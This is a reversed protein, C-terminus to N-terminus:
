GHIRGAWTSLASGLVSSLSSLGLEAQIRCEQRPGHLVGYVPLLFAQSAHLLFFPRQGATYLGPM